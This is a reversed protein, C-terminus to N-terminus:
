GLMELFAEVRTSMQGSLGQNLEVELSLLNLGAQKLEEALIPADFLEPECFKVLLLIVGKARGEQALELLRDRRLAIADGRTSCPPLSLYQQTLAEWPDVAESPTFLLRRGCALLDDHAVVAGLEDLLSLLEPPNPLIGSLVVRPGSAKQSHASDGRARALFERLETVHEEPWLWEGRRLVRYFEAAGAALEGAARAAYLEATLRAIEQGQAVAWALRAPDLEGFDLALAAALRKLEARYYARSSERLPAKPHYLFHCPRDQGIYDHVVSALNQISDCTHPFLFADCLEARGSLILELGQRVVSCIYPQLHGHAQAEALPPDWIEVPLAGVAWALERPHLAPFVGLVHRGQAKQSRLYEQRSDSM